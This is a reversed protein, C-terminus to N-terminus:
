KKIHEITNDGEAKLQAITKKSSDSIEQLGAINVSQAAGMTTNLGNVSNSLNQVNNEVTTFRIGINTDMNNVKTEISQMYNRLEVPDSQLASTAM